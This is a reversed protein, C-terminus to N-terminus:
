SLSHQTNGLAEGRTFFRHVENPTALKPKEANPRRIELPKWVHGKYNAGYVLRNTTDMLECQLALLEEVNGWEQGGTFRRRVLASHSPLNTVLAVLRRVGIADKGYCARRFDGGCM